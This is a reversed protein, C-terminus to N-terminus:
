RKVETESAIDIYLRGNLHDFEHQFIVATFGSVNECREEFTRGDRYRITIEKSREVRGWLGPVSLCGEAGTQKEESYYTIEPNIYIEFPKGVKDFRQVAIVRRLVGVQPAAIGVGENDPNMVTALMRETLVAFDPSGFMGKSVEASKSRLLLSDNLVNVTCLRMLGSSNDSHIVRLEDPSFVDMTSKCGLVMFMVGAMVIAPFFCGGIRM